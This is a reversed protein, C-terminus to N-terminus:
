VTDDPRADNNEEVKERRNPDPRLQCTISHKTAKGLPRHVTISVDIKWARIVDLAKFLAKWTMEEKSKRETKFPLMLDKMVNGKETSRSKTDSPVGNAPDKIYNNVLQHLSINNIGMETMMRIYLQRLLVGPGGSTKSSVPKKSTEDNM